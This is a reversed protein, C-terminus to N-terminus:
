IFVKDYKKERTCMGEEDFVFAINKDKPSFLCALKVILFNKFPM